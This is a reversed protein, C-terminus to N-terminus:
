RRRKETGDIDEVADVVEVAVPDAEGAVELVLVDNRNGELRLTTPMMRAMVLPM